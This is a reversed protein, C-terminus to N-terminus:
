HFLFTATFIAIDEIKLVVSKVVEAYLKSDPSRYNVLIM